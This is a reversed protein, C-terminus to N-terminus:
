MPPLCSNCFDKESLPLTCCFINCEIGVLYEQPSFATFCVNQKPLVPAAASTIEANITPSDSLTTPPPTDPAVLLDGMVIPTEMESVPSKEGSPAASM